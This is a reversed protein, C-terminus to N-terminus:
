EAYYHRCRDYFRYYSHRTLRKPNWDNLVTGIVDSGDEAFRRHADKVSDRSSLNARIVLVVGDAHRAIIRADSMSLMPPTDILVVDFDRRALGILEKFRSSHLLTPDGHVTDGSTMISLNPVGSSRVHGNLQGTLPERSRLLDVMGTERALNFFRHISPRRLDGDILLVRKHIEALAVALNTTLTTKGEKPSGSAVVLVQPHSGNEGCFMISTLTARFSEALPTPRTELTTLAMDRSAVPTLHGKLSVPWRSRTPDVSASPIIGLEPLGLYFLTDGPEQITRDSRERFIIFAVGSVFGALLGIVTNNFLSPSYPAQPLPAPDIVSINSARLASAISAEKVRQLMSDYLQRDTDVERKLTNYHTMKDADASVVKASDAYNAAILDERRKAANYDNTIRKIISDKLQQRASELVTIQDQIKVLAPDAPYRNYSLAADQRRLDTLQAQLARLSGDDLVEGLSDIPANQALELRSQHQIREAEAASLQGQLQSLKQDEANDKEDTIVLHNDRAYAQMADESQELKVKIVRMQDELFDGTHQTTEWRARLSQEIFESTLTNAFSAALKPDSSDCLIEILRTAPEVRIRINTVAAAVAAPSSRAATKQSLHLIRRWAELRSPPLNVETTQDAVKQTVRQMLASSQLIHVQTQLEMGPDFTPSNPDVDKMNLFDENLSQIEIVTRAQFIPTQPLTYLFAACMGAVATVVIAIKRRQLIRWYELLGGSPADVPAPIFAPDGSLSPQSPQQGQSLDLNSSDNM